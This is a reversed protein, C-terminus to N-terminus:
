AADFLGLAVLADVVDGFAAWNNYDAKARQVVPTAGYFGIKQNAATGIETGTGTAVVINKGDTMTLDDTVSLTTVTAAPASNAGITAGDIAGGDIDVADGTFVALKRGSTDVVYCDGQVNYCWTYNVPLTCKAIFRDTGNYNLKITATVSANDKNYLIINQIVYRSWSSGPGELMAKDTDGTTEGSDTAYGQFVGDTDVKGYTIHWEPEDDNAVAGLVVEIDTTSETLVIM